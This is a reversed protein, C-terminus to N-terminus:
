AMRRAVEYVLDEDQVPFGVKASLSALHEPEICFDGISSMDTVICYGAWEEPTMGMEEDVMYEGILVLLADVKSFSVQTEDTPASVITRGFVDKVPEFPTKQM